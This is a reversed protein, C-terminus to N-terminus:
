GFSKMPLSMDALKEPPVNANAAILKRGILYEPAANVAEVAAVAGDRLHFVAFKRSAAEGRVVIADDPRALGAIQLKLDYQDSWFWPVESYTGPKGMMALAAHKAQDIANQVCELRIEVGERGHHRTCDGAAFIAPDSTMASQDVVIGDSCALGAAAALDDNPVVGIGVLVLDAPHSVGGARVAEIRDKGEFGAVLTNLELTVGAKLHEQAYFDSVPKSVTRPMLRGATEFVTVKLGRKAAVAAVELGIYGGGVIAIRAGPHFGQQLGDVDAIDRLYHIGQLDTGLCRLKRVRTGTALLLKDYALTRGDSLSVTRAARDLKAARMNLLLECRAERYFEDGKLFLRERAFTGLLYAKSLPPRQYPPYAEDGVMTLRGQFGEARLSQVAQVGAQGAGIIVIHEAM